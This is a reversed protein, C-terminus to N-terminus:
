REPRSDIQGFYPPVESTTFSAGTPVTLGCVLCKRISGVWLAPIPASTGQKRRARDRKKKRERRILSSTM